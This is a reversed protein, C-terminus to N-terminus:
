LQWLWCVQLLYYIKLFDSFKVLFNQELLNMSGFAVVSHGIIKVITDIRDFSSGNFGLQELGDELADVRTFLDNKFNNLAVTLRITNYM